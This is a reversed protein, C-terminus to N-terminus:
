GVRDYRILKENAIFEVTDEEENSQGIRSGVGSVKGSLITPLLLGRDFQDWWKVRCVDGHLNLSRLEPEIDLGRNVAERFGWHSEDTRLDFLVM